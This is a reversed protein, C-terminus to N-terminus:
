AREFPLPSLAGAVRAAGVHRLVDAVIVREGAPRQQMVQIDRLLGRACVARFAGIHDPGIPQACGCACPAAPM